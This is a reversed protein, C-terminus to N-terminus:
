YITKALGGHKKVAKGRKLCWYIVEPPVHVPLKGEISAAESSATAVTKLRRQVFEQTDQSYFHLYLRRADGENPLNEVVWLKRLWM